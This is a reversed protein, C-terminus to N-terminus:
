LTELHWIAFALSVRFLGPELDLLDFDGILQTSQVTESGMAGRYDTLASRVAAALAEADQYTRAYCDVNFASQVLGITGCFTRTRETGQRSYVLCPRKSAADFVQDPIVEPYIRDSVLNTIASQAGLFTYLGQKISM